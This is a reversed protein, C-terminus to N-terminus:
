VQIVFQASIQEQAAIGAITVFERVARAVSLQGAEDRWTYDDGALLGGIRIKPYWLRLDQLVAQYSHDGDIYVWDFYADPFQPAADASRLRHIKVRPNKQFAAAVDRYITDMGKQDSVAAGGYRRQPFEASFAWPDVLHLEAPATGQLLRRSFMGKWVGVEAGIGNKPLRAVLQERGRANHLSASDPATKM